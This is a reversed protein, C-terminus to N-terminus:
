RYYSHDAFTAKVPFSKPSDSLNLLLSLGPHRDSTWYAWACLLSFDLTDKIACVFFLARFGGSLRPRTFQVDQTDKGDQWIHM